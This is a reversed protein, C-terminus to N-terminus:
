VRPINELEWGARYPEGNIIADAEPLGKACMGEADWYIKKGSRIALVGLLALETLRAAYGFETGAPAGGKCADIWERHHGPSRPLTPEPRKYSKDLKDPLLFPTQGLGPCVLLGKPGVFYCGRRPWEMGAPWCDPTPPRMGGDYWTVKVPPKRGRRGFEYHCVESHPTLEPSTFGGQFAEVTTPAVLDLAWCIVDMDHCVFDGIAGLGFTWFDRWRVPTYVPHYPRPERPGLWLDWNVGEPMPPEDKPSTVMWKHWRAAPVWAHAESVPGIAGDWLWECAQRMGERAHGLNGMQTAVGMEAAVQAMLRVERISHALPKECYVHKGQRMAYISVYAHSFDPTACVVADIEPHKALMVRFDEYDPCSYSPDKERYFKEVAAKVNLRGLPKKYFFDDQYQAIPDAIAVVKVDAFPMLNNLVGMGMGGAGVLAVKVVGDRVPRTTKKPVSKRPSMDAKEGESYPEGHLCCKYKRSM